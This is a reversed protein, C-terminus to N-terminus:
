PAACTPPKPTVGHNSRLEADIGGGSTFAKIRGDVGKLTISGGSTNVDLDGTSDVIEISGGSTDLKTNGHIREAEIRGGSTKGRVSGTLERVDLSGGSTKLEVSYDRPVEITFRVHSSSVHFWDFWGRDTVHGAVSVGSTTQEATVQLHDSDDMQAHIVVAHADRGVIAVSGLDTDVTLHGGPAADFRKDFSQPAAFAASAALSLAAIALLKGKGTDMINERTQNRHFTL